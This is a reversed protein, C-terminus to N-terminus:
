QVGPTPYYTTRLYGDAACRALMNLKLHRSMTASYNRIFLTAICFPNRIIDTHVVGIWTDLRGEDILDGHVM